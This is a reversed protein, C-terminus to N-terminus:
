HRQDILIDPEPKNYALFVNVGIITQMLERSKLHQQQYTCM